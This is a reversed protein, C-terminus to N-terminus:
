IISTATNIRNWGLVSFTLAIYQLLGSKHFDALYMRYHWFLGLLM